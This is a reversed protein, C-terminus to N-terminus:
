GTWPRRRLRILFQILMAIVLLWLVIDLATEFGYWPGTYGTCAIYIQKSLDCNAWFGYVRFLFLGGVILYSFGLVPSVIVSFFSLWSLYQIGFGPTLTLFLSFVLFCSELLTIKKQIMLSRALFFLLLFFLEVFLGIHV